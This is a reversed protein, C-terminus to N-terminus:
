NKHIYVVLRHLTQHSSVFIFLRKNVWVESTRLFGAHSETLVRAVDELFYPLEEGLIIMGCNGGGLVSIDLSVEVGRAGQGFVFDVM